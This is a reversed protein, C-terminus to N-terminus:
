SRAKSEGGKAVAQRTLFWLVGVLLYGAADLVFGPVILALAAAGAAIRELPNLRRRFYGETMIALSIVGVLASITVLIFEPWSTVNTLLLCPSYIFVFPIVFGALALKIATFGTQNPSSGAIGAATYAGVCVPPTISSLVAFYLVFLHVDLAHCGLAILAPTAVASSMVYSATTPMGMGMMLAIFMTIILTPLLAGGTLGLVADGVRLAIGTAGMMGIVIGVVTCAIAVSLASKSGEELTNIFGKVDLRSEKKIFSLGLALIIGWCGAYLPNYGKVLFYVIGFLPIARYGKSRVVEWLKPLQSRDLGKLDLRDAEFTLSWWIGWFYLVAPVIAVLLVQLYSIGLTDAIIFASAGMVPPMIQGGTSAAAEVAGAFHPKYGIKKM